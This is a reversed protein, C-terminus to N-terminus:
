FDKFSELDEPVKLSNLDAFHVRDLRNFRLVDVWRDGWLQRPSKKAPRKFCKWKIRSDSPHEINCLTTLHPEKEKSGGAAAVSVLLFLIPITLLPPQQM